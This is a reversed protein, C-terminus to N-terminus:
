ETVRRLAHRLREIEGELRETLAAVRQELENREAEMRETMNLIVEVGALNVGLDNTLRQILQVREIDQDSYMRVNGATRGPRVLGIREYHRLTQPHCQTVEAVVGIFYVPRVRAHVSPTTESDTSGRAM